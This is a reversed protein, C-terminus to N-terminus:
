KKRVQHLISMLEEIQSSNSVKFSSYGHMDRKLVLSKPSDFSEPTGRVTIRFSQDRGQPRITWFNDPTEVYKKSPKYLKLEGPFNARVAHLIAAGLQKLSPVLEKMFHADGKNLPGNPARLEKEPRVIERPKAEVIITEPSSGLNLVHVNTPSFHLTSKERDFSPTEALLLISVNGYNLPKTGLFRIEQPSLQAKWVTVDLQQVDRVSIMMGM